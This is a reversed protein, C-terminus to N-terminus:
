DSDDDSDDDNGNRKRKRSTQPHQFKEFKFIRAERTNAQKRTEGMGATRRHSYGDFYRWEFKGSRQVSYGITDKALKKIKWSEYPEGSFLTITIVDVDEVKKEKDSNWYTNFDDHTDDDSYNFDDDGNKETETEKIKSEWNNNSERQKRLIGFLEKCSKYFGVIMEQNKLINREVDKIQKGIHPFNFIINNIKLSGLMELSKGSGDGHRKGRVNVGLTDALKTGDIGHYIKTVGLEKIKNINDVAINGYKSELEEKTDYSTAIINNPKILGKQLISLTYSFDGDGVILIRDKKNFPIFVKNEDLPEVSDAIKCNQDSKAALKENTNPKPRAKSKSKDKNKSYHIDRNELKQIKLKRQKEEHIQKALANALNGKGRKAM